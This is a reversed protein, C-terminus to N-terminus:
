EGEGEYHEKPPKSDGCLGRNTGPIQYKADKLEERNNGKQGIGQIPDTRLPALNRAPAPPLVLDLTKEKVGEEISIPNVQLKVPSHNGM